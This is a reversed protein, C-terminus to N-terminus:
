VGSVVEGFGLRELNEPTLDSGSVTSTTVGDVLVVVQNANTGRLFVSSNSGLGGNSSIEIGPQTQLLEVFTSQGARQIEEADIVTVDGLVSERTQSIRTATVVVDELNINEAAVVANTFALGLLSASM